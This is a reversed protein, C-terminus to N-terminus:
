DTRCQMNDFNGFNVRENYLTNKNKHGITQMCYKAGLQLGRDLSHM